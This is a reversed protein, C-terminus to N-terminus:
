VRDAIQLALRFAADPPQDSNLDDLMEVRRIQEPKEFHRVVLQPSARREHEFGHIRGAPHCEEFGVDAIERMLSRKMRIRQPIENLGAAERADVHLIARRDRLAIAEVM